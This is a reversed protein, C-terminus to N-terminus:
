HCTQEKQFFGLRIGAGQMYQGVFMLFVLISNIKSVKKVMMSAQLWLSCMKATCVYDDKCPGSQTWVLIMQVSGVNKVNCSKEQM